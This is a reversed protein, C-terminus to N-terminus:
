LFIFCELSVLPNELSETAQVETETEPLPPVGGEETKEESEVAAVPLMDDSKEASSKETVKRRQCTEGRVVPSRSRRATVERRGDNAPGVNRYRPTNTTIRSPSQRKREPSPAVHRRAVPRAVREKRPPFEGSNGVPRKRVVKKAPPSKNKVKQTVEGDDDAEIEEKRGDAATTATTAASFSESYSYMESVESVNEEVEVTLNEAGGDLLQPNTLPIPPQQPKPVIPTESLVEKVTEEEPPPPTPPKPPHRHNVAATTLCCGM